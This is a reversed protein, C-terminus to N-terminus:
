LRGYKCTVAGYGLTQALKGLAVEGRSRVRLLYHRRRRTHRWRPLPIAPRPAPWPEQALNVAQSVGVTMGRDKFSGTPNEGEHKLIFNSWGPTLGM